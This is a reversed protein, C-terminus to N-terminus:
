VSHLSPFIHSHNAWADNRIVVQSFFLNDEVAAVEVNKDFVGKIRDLLSSVLVHNGSLKTVSVIDLDNLGAARAFCPLGSNATM